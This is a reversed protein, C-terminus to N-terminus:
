LTLFTGAALEKSNKSSYFNQILHNLGSPICKDLDANNRNNHYHQWTSLMFAELLLVMGSSFEDMREAVKSDVDGGVEWGM